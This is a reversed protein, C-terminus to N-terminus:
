VVEVQLLDINKIYVLSAESDALGTAVKIMGWEKSNNVLGFFWVKTDNGKYETLIKGSTGEYLITGKKLPYRGKIKGTANDFFRGAYIVRDGTEKFRIVPWEWREMDWIIVDLYRHHEISGPTKAIWEATVQSITELHRRLIYDYIFEIYDKVGDVWTLYKGYTYGNGPSYKDYAYISLYQDWVMNGWSKTVVAHGATGMQSEVRFQSIAYTPDILNDLLLQWIDDAEALAPSNKSKLLSKFKDITIRPNSLVLSNQNHLIYM